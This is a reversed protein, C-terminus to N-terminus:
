KAIHDALGQCADQILDLAHNFGDQRSYYPDPVGKGRFAEDSSFESLLMIEAHQNDVGWHQRAMEVAELNSSDMAVIYDFMEFDDKNLPRSESELVLGRQQAAYQMRIDPPSGIHHSFGDELYWDPSGGGTGCSDVFFADTLNRSSLVAKMVAEAAPSRCINGLCLMLIGKRGQKDGSGSGSGSESTSTSTSANPNPNPNTSATASKEEDATASASTTTSVAASSSSPAASGADEEAEAATMWTFGRVPVRLRLRLRTRAEARRSSQARSFENGSGPKTLVCPVPAVFAFQMTDRYKEGQGHIIFSCLWFFFFVWVFLCVFGFFFLTSPWISLFFFCSRFEFTLLVQRDVYLSAVVDILASTCPM